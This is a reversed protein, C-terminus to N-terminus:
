ESDIGGFRRRVSGNGIWGSSRLITLVATPTMRFMESPWPLDEMSVAPFIRVVKDVSGTLVRRSEKSTAIVM